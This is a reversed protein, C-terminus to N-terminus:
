GLEEIAQGLNKLAMSRLSQPLNLIQLLLPCMSIIIALLQAYGVLRYKWSSRKWGLLGKPGIVLEDILLTALPMVLLPYVFGWELRGTTAVSWWFVHVVANVVFPVMTAVFVNSNGGLPEYFGKRFHYGASVTWRRWIDRPSSIFLPNDCIDIVMAGNGVLLRTPANFLLDQLATACTFLLTAFIRELWWPLSEIYGLEDLEVVASNASIFVILHLLGRGLIWLGKARSNAKAGAVVANSDFFIITPVSLMFAAVRSFSTLGFTNAFKTGGVSLAHVYRTIQMAFPVWFLAADPNVNGGSEYFISKGLSLTGALFVGLAVLISWRPKNIVLLQM